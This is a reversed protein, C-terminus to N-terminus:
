LSIPAPIPTVNVYQYATIFKYSLMRTTFNYFLFLSLM